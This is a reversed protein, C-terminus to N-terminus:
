IGEPLELGILSFDIDLKEFNEFLDMNESGSPNIVVYSQDANLATSDEPTTLPITKRM